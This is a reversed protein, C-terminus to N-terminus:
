RLLHSRIDLILRMSYLSPYILLTSSRSCIISTQQNARGIHKCEQKGARLNSFHSRRLANLSLCLLFCNSRIAIIAPLPTCLCLVYASAPLVSRIDVAPLNSQRGNSSVGLLHPLTSGSKKRNGLFWFVCSKCRRQHQHAVAHPRGAVKDM